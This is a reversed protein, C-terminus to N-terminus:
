TKKYFYTLIAISIFAVAGLLPLVPLWSTLSPFQSFQWIGIGLGLVCFTIVYDFVDKSKKWIGVALIPVLPYMMIRLFWCSTCPTIGMIESTILSGVVSLISAFLALWVFYKKM